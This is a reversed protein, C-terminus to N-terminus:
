KKLKSFCCTGSEACAPQISLEVIDLVGMGLGAPAKDLPADGSNIRVSDRNLPDLVDAINKLREESLKQSKVDGKVSQSIVYAYSIGLGDRWGEFWEALERANAAGLVSSKPEFRVSHQLGALSCAWVQSSSVGCMLVALLLGIVRKASFIM